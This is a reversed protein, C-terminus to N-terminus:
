DEFLAEMPAAAQPVDSSVVQYIETYIQSDSPGGGVTYYIETSLTQDEAPAVRGPHAAPRWLAVAVVLLTALAVAPQIVRWGARSGPLDLRAYIDRRQRALFHPSLEPTEVAERRRARLQELRGACASCTRLHLDGDRLGYLHELMEEDNWHPRAVTTEKM